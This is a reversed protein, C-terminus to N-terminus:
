STQEDDTSLSKELTNSGESDKCKSMTKLYQM